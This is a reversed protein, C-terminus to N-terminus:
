NTKSLYDDTPTVCYHSTSLKENGRETIEYIIREIDLCGEFAIKKVEYTYVNNSTNTEFKGGIFMQWSTKCFLKIYNEKNELLECKGVRSVKNKDLPTMSKISTPTLYTYGSHMSMPRLPQYFIPNVFEQKNISESKSQANTSFALFSCLVFAFKKM